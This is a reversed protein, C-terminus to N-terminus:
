GHQLGDQDDERDDGERDPQDVVHASRAARFILMTSYAHRARSQGRGNPQARGGVVHLSDLLQAGAAHASDIVWNTLPQLRGSSVHDQTKVLVFKSALRVAERTGDRILAEVDKPARYEELGYADDFAETSPTGGLRYPPDFVVTPFRDAPFPTSRFDHHFHGKNPHLDNDYVVLGPLRRWFAGKGYTLDLIPEPLYGLRHCDVLLDANSRRKTDFAYILDSV